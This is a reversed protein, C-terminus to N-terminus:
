NQNVSRAFILEGIPVMSLSVNSLRIISITIANTAYPMRLRALQIVGKNSQGSVLSMAAGIHETGGCM